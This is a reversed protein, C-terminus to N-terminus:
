QAVGGEWFEDINGARDPLRATEDSVAVLVFGVAEERGLRTKMQALETARIANSTVIVLVRDALRAARRLAQGESRGTWATCILREVPDELDHPSPSYSALQHSGFMPDIAYATPALALGMPERGVDGGTEDLIDEDDYQDDHEGYDDGASLVPAASSPPLTGIPTDMLTSANWDHNLQGVIESALDRDGESAGVVLMTGKAEPAFDDMDAILDILARPDRPWTTTGVVPGNGWWAVEAPTQVLLGRLERYLLFALMVTMCFLPIGAAVLLKKKSPVADEPPRAAAVTRFGTEVDRLQDQAHAKAQTLETVLAEKVNVQALLTAAQGEIASFRNTRGQAQGANRDLAEHRRRAAELETEAEALNTQTQEYLSSVSMRTSQGGGGGRELTDVQRQVAQVQPHENSLSSRM